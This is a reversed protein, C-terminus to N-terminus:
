LWSIDDFGRHLYGGKEWSSGEYGFTPWLSKDNYLQNVLDGRVTQFFRSEEIEYLVQMRDSESTLDAYRNAFRKVAAADLRSVGGVMLSQFDRDAGAKADYPGIVNLYHKDPLSDHPCIDRAMRLLTKGVNAGLGSFTTAVAVDPVALASATPVVMVSVACLASRGLFRRRNLGAPNCDRVPNAANSEVGSDKDEHQSM